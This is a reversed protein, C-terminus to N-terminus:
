KGELLKLVQPLSTAKRGRRSKADYLLFSEGQPTLVWRPSKATACGLDFETVFGAKRLKPALRFCAEWGQPSPSDPRLLICRPSSSVAEAPLLAMLQDAYLAFGSAPVKGGGVLPLLDDYRGGGGIKVGGYYFQFLVGTYYEFGGESAFDLEYEYGLSSLLRAIDLFNDLPALLGPLDQLALARLNQLFGESTGRFNVFLAVAKKLSQKDTKVESLVRINGELAKDLVETKAEPSLELEEILARLVGIHSLRLKVPTIGLRELVEGGLALLEVDAAPLNSGLLEVGCQWHERTKEENEEFSFTNVVYFLRALEQQSMNNVFLRAAPITGEPRLVVREGGWGNWDLFSYVQRLRQPTLTGTATFLHLYELLPTRIEEFGRELCASRFVGEILRFRSMDQPLLDRMGKCRQTKLSIKRKDM